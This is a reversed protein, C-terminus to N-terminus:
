KREDEDKHSTPMDAAYVMVQHADVPESWRMKQWGDRGILVVRFADADVHYLKRLSAGDSTKSDPPPLRVQRDGIVFVTMIDSDELEGQARQIQDYEQQLPKSQVDPAFIFLVRPRPPEHEVKDAASALPGTLASVLIAALSLHIRNM